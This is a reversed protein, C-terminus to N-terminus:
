DNIKISECKCVNEEETKILCKYLEYDKKQIRVKWDIALKTIKMFAEYEQKM